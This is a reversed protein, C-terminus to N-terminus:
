RHTPTHMRNLHFLAAQGMLWIILWVLVLFIKHWLIDSPLPGRLPWGPCLISALSRALCMGSRVACQTGAQAEYSPSYLSPQQNKRQAADSLGNWWIALSKAPLPRVPTGLGDEELSGVFISNDWVHGWAQEDNDM